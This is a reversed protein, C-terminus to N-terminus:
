DALWKYREDTEIDEADIEGRLIDLAVGHEGLEEAKRYYHYEAQRLEETDRYVARNRSAPYIAREWGIQVLAM